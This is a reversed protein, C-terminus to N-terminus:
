AVLAEPQEFFDISERWTLIHGPEDETPADLAFPDFDEPDQVPIFKPEPKERIEERMALSEIAGVHWCRQGHQGAPCNCLLEGHSRWVIYQMPEGKSNRRDSRTPVTWSLGPCKVEINQIAQAQKM